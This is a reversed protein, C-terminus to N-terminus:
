VLTLFGVIISVTLNFLNHQNPCTCLISSLLIVLLTNYLFNPFLLVSLYVLFYIALHPSLAHFFLQHLLTAPFHVYCLPISSAGSFPLSNDCEVRALPIFSHNLLPSTVVLSRTSFSVYKILTHNHGHIILLCTLQLHCRGM